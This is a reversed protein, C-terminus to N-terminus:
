EDEDGAQETLLPTRAMQLSAPEFIPEVVVFDTAAPNSLLQGIAGDDTIRTVMAVAVGPRFLGGAGSTVFIDGEELPNIGLNILRIRLSGDARGEAFAVVDDTARRVPVISENDTLLLVRSTSQGVELIRGVLGMPSTVPMGVKVGDGRGASLYGFRRTSTSSSGILRGTAVPRSEGESQALRLVGRLRANEEELAEMEAAKVRAIQLERELQANRSGANYYGAIAEFFSRSGTRTSAGAEGVPSAADAAMSRLGNFTEPRWLSIILLLAGLAAGLTAFAFGAFRGLQARKNSGTIQASPPAM